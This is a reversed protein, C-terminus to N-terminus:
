KGVEIIGRLGMLGEQFIRPDMEKVDSGIIPKFEMFPLIQTAIDIGPAVETLRLGDETLRFVCRDTIYLVKQGIEMAHPGSFTVQNIQNLFKKEAGEQLIVLKGDKVEAKYGGATMTGCFVVNKAGQTLNIFGGAGPRREIGSKDLFRSVNVSGKSDCEALGVFTAYLFGSDYLDFITPSDVFALANTTSGFSTRAAPVGGFAGTEVTLVLDDAIGEENAVSSIGEPYGLGTNVPVHLQLEWAARRAITKKVGLPLVAAASVPYKYKGTYAPNYFEGMTMRHNKEQDTCIVLKDIFVGPIVVEKAPLAGKKVVNKVQCLVIGGSAKTAMAIAQINTLVAEDECTLNGDEDATTGRFLAVDIKPTRYALYEEGLVSVVEVLNENTVSNTKGGEMRPDVFTGLGVKSLEVDLGRARAKFLHEIVGQPFNYSEVKLDAQMKMISHNSGNHGVIVRRIMGDHAFHEFGRFVGGMPGMDGVGSASMITMNQPHGTELFRAEIAACIEEALCNNMNGACTLFAQDLILEAAEQATCIKTYM